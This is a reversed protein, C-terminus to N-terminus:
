ASRGGLGACGWGDEIWEANWAGKEQCPKVGFEHGSFDPAACFYRPHLISHCLKSPAVLLQIVQLLYDVLQVALNALPLDFPIEERPLEDNGAQQFAHSSQGSPAPQGDGPLGIEQPEHLVANIVAGPPTPLSNKTIGYHLTLEAAAFNTIYVYSKASAVQAPAGLTKRKM